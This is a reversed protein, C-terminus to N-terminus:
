YDSRGFSWIILIVFWTTIIFILPNHKIFDLISGVFSIISEINLIILQSILATIGVAILFFLSIKLIGLGDSKKKKERKEQKLREELPEPEPPRVVIEDRSM